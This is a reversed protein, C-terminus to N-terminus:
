LSLFELHGAGSDELAGSMGSRAMILAVMGDIKGQGSRKVPRKNGNNDERVILNSAMWRLVPNALHALKRNPIDTELLLKTPEAFNAITQPFKVLREPDIGRKQLDNIFQTANWPDFYLRQVDYREFDAVVQAAIADYDIVNGDTATLFGDRIWVDYPLRGDKILREVNGEPVYFHPLVIYPEGDNEPPLLKVHAAIDETSALDIGIICPRGALEAEKERRLSVADHEKLSFGACANWDEMQIAATEQSTWVNLRLRLFANLASPDNKAKNAQRRLDEFKVSVGLNPNPKIWNREDFPDDGEDLTAIFAFLSDDQIIGELVKCAYEHQTFCITERDFGATTIAWLLGQRRAGSATDLVDWLKRTKHAHLEDVLGGSLNLGDLTDEDAGLPEMKSATEPISMNSKYKQIRKALEPSAKRMRTAEEFVIRAQDKKTAACYIEAGAEGDGILLYLGTGALDTSKGNKRGLEEHVVRFRRTGDAKKWGFVCWKIFQQWPEPRFPQGAWEGKSHNLFRHFDLAHQAAAPDFRLGRKHGDRLDNFHRQAALKVWKGALVRGSLVDRAYREAPHLKAKTAM